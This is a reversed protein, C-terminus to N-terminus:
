EHPANETEAAAGQAAPPKDRGNDRIWRGAIFVAFAGFLWWEFAYAVSRFDMQSEPERPPLVQWSASGEYSVLVAPYLPSPWRQAFEATSVAGASFAGSIAIEPVNATSAAAEGARLYGTVEVEGATDDPEPVDTAASWGVLVALTAPKGTGTQDADVTLPRVLFVAPEGDVERGWVVAADDAAWQGSVTVQRGISAGPSVGPTIVDALPVVPEPAVTEGLESARQWQWWGLSGCAAVAIAAFAIAPLVRSWRM